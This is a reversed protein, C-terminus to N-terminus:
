VNSSGFDGAKHEEHKLSQLRVTGGDLLQSALESVFM